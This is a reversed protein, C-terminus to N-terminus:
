LLELSEIGGLSTALEKIRVPITEAVESFMFRASHGAIEFKADVLATRRDFDDDQSGGIEDCHRKWFQNNRRAEL